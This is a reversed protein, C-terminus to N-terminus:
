KQKPESLKTPEKVAVGARLKEVRYDSALASQWLQDVVVSRAQIAELTAGQLIPILLLWRLLQEFAEKNFWLTNQYRNVRLFQQGDSDQLIVSLLQDAREAAPMAVLMQHTTMLKVAAVVQTAEFDAIGIERLANSMLRGLLWEDIWSRSQDASDSGGVLNGLTHVFIWNYLGGWFELDDALTAATLELASNAPLEAELLMLSEALDAHVEDVIPKISLEAQNGLGNFSTISELLTTMQEDILALLVEPDVSEKVAEAIAESEEDDVESVEIGSRAALLAKFTAGNVLAAFPERIPQVFLEQLAEDINPVGRGSLYAALNGYRNIPSDTVVRFDVFVHCQYAGLEVFLGQESIEKCNRIYELGSRHDRFVCYQNSDFPLALGEGLTRQTMAREDGRGTKVSFGVSSRIWGRTTGFVNHYIVFSREDGARNSYAFVNDNVSGDPTFFDYLLFNEVGAFLYRKKSLPFIEREHRAILHQDPQEEWYARRYEMGYKEAFGEIQGHGFMPLGPMTVMLTCIGFYKDDKGFQEVATREDPNNMFNVYRKLIEPDFELTNKMILRYKANEEDRLINMFASNYVRHMGLTRVFYGEMMWFAEALLLTDPAEVAARDVVERWFEVSMAADFAAKTLGHESRSAIAGGSGPEPFWLRQVHRKVLTMAADFRIIPFQRAIHLILNVMAERVEPHLYNLQATDNWPMSTGDNGHYVFKESGTWRDVRKFVVAADTKDYYHDELFIGVREDSSLDPGNFTYSPFPSYDLSVFWDPHEMVWKGDIGVHNPVMDSALRIGRQWAREKLKNCAEDGGLGAAIQYDYLSYASAVADPNGCLVKIRQSASSREWLGILWLGTFGHQALADLEEDPVQDLRTIDRKYRKSLQDLWVYANKALLVLNPMWERDTSFREAEFEPGSGSGYHPVPIPGPGGFVPKTEERILDMGRLLRYALSGLVSSWRALIYAIQGELSYPATRSPALLFDMINEGTPIIKQRGTDLKSRADFFKYLNEVIKNYFTEQELPDDGFLELYPAFAPNVNSLWLMIIEELAMERNREDAMFSQLDLERLYVPMVPFVEGFKDLATDIVKQGMSERLWTLAERILKPDEQVCYSRFVYQTIGQILAVANIQSASVAQEPFSLLDRKQNMQQAFIRAAHFTAILSKGTTAFLNRDFQYQDRALRLVHFGFLSTDDFQDMM